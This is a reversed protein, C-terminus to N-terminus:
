RGAGLGMWQGRSPFGGHIHDGLNKRQDEDAKRGQGCVSLLAFDVVFFGFDRFVAQRGNEFHRVASGDGICIRPCGFTTWGCQFLESSVDITTGRHRPGAQSELNLVALILRQLALRPPSLHCEVERIVVLTRLDIEQDVKWNLRSTRRGNKQTQVKLAVVGDM